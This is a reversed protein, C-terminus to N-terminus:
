DCDFCFLEHLLPNIFIFIRVHLFTRMKKNDVKALQALSLSLFLFGGAICTSSFFAEAELM